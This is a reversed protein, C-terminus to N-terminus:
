CRPECPREATDLAAGDDVSLRLADLVRPVMCYFGATMILEIRDSPQFREELSALTEDKVHGRIMDDTLALASTEEVDFLDSERWNPIAEIQASTVGAVKAIVTHDAWQYAADQIHACRLIMLERLSRRTTAQQRIGWGVKIWLELFCPNNALARYLDSVDAGIQQLLEAPQGTVERLPVSPSLECRRRQYREVIGGDNREVSHAIRTANRDQGSCREARRM